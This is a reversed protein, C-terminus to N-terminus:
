RTPLFEEHLQQWKARGLCKLGYLFLLNEEDSWPIKGEQNKREEEGKDDAEEEEDDSLCFEDYLNEVCEDSDSMEDDNRESLIKRVLTRNARLPSYIDGGKSEAEDILRGGYWKVQKNSRFFCLHM